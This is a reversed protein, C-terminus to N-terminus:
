HGNEGGGDAEPKADAAQDQAPQTERSATRGALKIHHKPRRAIPSPPYQKSKVPVFRGSIVAPDDERRDFEHGSSPDKVRIWLPGPM